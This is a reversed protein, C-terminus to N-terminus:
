KKACLIEILYYITYTCLTLKTGAVGSENDLTKDMSTSTASSFAKGKSQSKGNSWSHSYGASLEMGFSSQFGLNDSGVNFSHSFSFTTSVSVEHTYDQSVTFDVSNEVAEENAIGFNISNSECDFIAQRGIVKWGKAVFNPKELIEINTVKCGFECTQFQLM